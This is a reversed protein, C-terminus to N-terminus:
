RNNLKMQDSFHTLFLAQLNNLLQQAYRTKSLRAALEKLQGAVIWGNKFAIEDPACVLPGQWHQLERVFEVAESLSDHTGADLWAFGRGLREM